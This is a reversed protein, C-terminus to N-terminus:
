HRCETYGRWRILVPVPQMLSGDLRAVGALFWPVYFFICVRVGIRGHVICVDPMAFPEENHIIGRLEYLYAGNQRLTVAMTMVKHGVQYPLLGWVDIIHM